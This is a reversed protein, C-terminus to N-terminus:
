LPTLLSQGLVRRRRLRGRYVRPRVFHPSPGCPTPIPGWSRRLRDKLREAPLVEDLYVVGQRAAAADDGGGLDAEGLAPLEVAVAVSGGVVGDGLDWVAPSDDAYAGDLRLPTALAGRDCVFGARARLTDAASGSDTTARVSEARDGQVVQANQANQTIIPVHGDVGKGSCLVGNDNGGRLIEALQRIQRLEKLVMRSRGNQNPWVAFLDRKRHSCVVHEALYHPRHLMALGYADFRDIALQGRLLRRTQKTHAAARKNAEQVLVFQWKIAQSIRPMTSQSQVIHEGIPFALPRIPSGSEVLQGALRVLVAQVVDSGIRVLDGQSLCPPRLM